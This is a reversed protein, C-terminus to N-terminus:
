KIFSLVKCEIVTGGFIEVVSKSFQRCISNRLSLANKNATTQYGNIENNNSCTNPLIGPIARM